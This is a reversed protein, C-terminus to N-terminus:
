PLQKRRRVHMGTHNMGLNGTATFPTAGTWHRHKHKKRHCFHSCDTHSLTGEAEHV